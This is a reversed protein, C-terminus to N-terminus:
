AEHLVFFSVRSSERHPHFSCGARSVILPSRRDILRREDTGRKREMKESDRSRPWRSQAQEPLKEGMDGVYVSYQRTYKKSRRSFMCIASLQFSLSAVGKGSSSILVSRFMRWSRVTIRDTQKEPPLVTVQFSGSSRKKM